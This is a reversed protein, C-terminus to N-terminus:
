GDNDPKEVKKAFGVAAVLSQSAAFCLAFGTVHGVEWESARRSLGM